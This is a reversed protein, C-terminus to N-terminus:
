DVEGVKMVGGLECLIEDGTMDVLDKLQEMTLNKACDSCIHLNWIEIYKEGERIDGDCLYCTEVAKPDPANPCRSACPTQWCVECM